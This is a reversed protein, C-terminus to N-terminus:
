FNLFFKSSRVFPIAPFKELNQYGPISKLMFMHVFDARVLLLYGIYIICSFWDTINDTFSTFVLWQLAQIGYHPCTCWKFGLNNILQYAKPDPLRSNCIIWDHIIGLIGLIIFILALFYKLIPNSNNIDFTIMRSSCFGFHFSIIGNFIVTRLPIPRSYSKKFFTYIICRYFYQILFLISPLSFIYGNPYYFQTYIFILPSPIHSIFTGIRSNFMFGKTNKQVFKGYPFLIPPIFIYIVLSLLLNFLAFSHFHDNSRFYNLFYSILPINLVM